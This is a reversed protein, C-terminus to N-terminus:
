LYKWICQFTSCIYHFVYYICGFANFFCEFVKTDKLIGRDVMLICELIKIYMLSGELYM